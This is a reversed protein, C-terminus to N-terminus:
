VNINMKILMRHMDNLWKDINQSPKGTFSPFDDIIRISTKLRLEQEFKTIVTNIDSTIIENTLAPSAEAIDVTRKTSLFTNIFENIFAHIDSIQLRHRRYWEQAKGVLQAAAFDRRQQPNMDTNEIVALLSDLWIGPDEDLSGSFKFVHQQLQNSISIAATKVFSPHSQDTTFNASSQQIIHKNLTSEKGSMPQQDVSSTQQVNNTDNTQTM